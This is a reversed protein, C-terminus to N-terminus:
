FSYFCSFSRIYYMNVTSMHVNKSAHSFIYGLIEFKHNETNEKPSVFLGGTQVERLLAATFSRTM